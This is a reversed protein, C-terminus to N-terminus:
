VVQHAGHRGCVAAGRSHRRLLAHEAGLGARRQSRRDGSTRRLSASRRLTSRNGGACGSRPLRYVEGM